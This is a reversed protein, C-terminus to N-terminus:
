TLYLKTLHNTRTRQKCVPCELCNSLWQDWCTDCCIHGCRAALITEAPEQCVACVCARTSLSSAKTDSVSASLVNTTPPLSTFTSVTPNAPTTELKPRKSKPLPLGTVLDYELRGPTSENLTGTTTRSLGQAATASITRSSESMEPQQMSRQRAELQERYFARHPAPVFTEFTIFLQRKLTAHMDGVTPAFLDEIQPILACIADRNNSDLAVKWQRLIEKFRNFKADDFTSRVKTYYEKATLKLPALQTEM